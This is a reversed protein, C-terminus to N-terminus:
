HLLIGTGSQGRLGGSGCFMHGDENRWREQRKDRWTETLLVVDWEVCQLEMFLEEERLATQLSHVNKTYVQVLLPDVGADIHLTGTTAGTRTTPSADKPNAASYNRPPQLSGAPFDGDVCAYSGRGGGISRSQM